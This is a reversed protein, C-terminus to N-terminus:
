GTPAPPDPPRVPRRTGLSARLEAVDAPTFRHRGIADVGHPLARGERIWNIVVQPKVGLQKGVEVPGYLAESDATPSLDSM